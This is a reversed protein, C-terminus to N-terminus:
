VGFTSIRQRECDAAVTENVRLQEVQDAAAVDIVRMDNLVVAM